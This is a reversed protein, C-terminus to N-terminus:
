KGGRKSTVSVPTRGLDQESRPVKRLQKLGVPKKKRTSGSDLKSESRGVTGQTGTHCLERSPMEESLVCPARHSRVTHKKESERTLPHNM